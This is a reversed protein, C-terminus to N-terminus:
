KRFEILCRGYFIKDDSILGELVFFTDAFNTHKADFYFVKDGVHLEFPSGQMLSCEFTNPLIQKEFNKKIFSANFKM